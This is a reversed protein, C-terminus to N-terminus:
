DGEHALEKIIEAAIKGSRGRLEWPFIEEIFPVVKPGLEGTQYAHEVLHFIEEESNAHWGVGERYIKEEFSGPWSRLVGEKVIWDPFVVPIGLAWAEYVVSSVDSIVVKAKPLFDRTLSAKGLVAPHGLYLFPFNGRLKALLADSFKGDSSVSAVAKHTPAWIVFERELERSPWIPDLFPYGIIFIRAEDMGQKKLKERWAPGSVFVYKFGSLKEKNRWNKDALGHSMFASAQPFKEWTLSITFGPKPGTSIEGARLHLLIPEVHARHIHGYAAGGGILFVIPKSASM